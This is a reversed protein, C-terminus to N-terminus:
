SNGQNSTKVFQESTFIQDDTYILYKCSDNDSLGLDEYIQIVPGYKVNNVHIYGGIKIVTDDVIIEDSTIQNYYVAKRREKM